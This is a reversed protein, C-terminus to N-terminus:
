HFVLFMVKFVDNVNYLTAEIVSLFKAKCMRHAAHLQKLGLRAFSEYMSIRSDEAPPSADEVHYDNQWYSDLNTIGVFKFIFTM